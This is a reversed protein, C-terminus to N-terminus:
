MPSLAGPWAPPLLRLRFPPRQCSTGIVPQGPYHGSGVLDALGAVAPAVGVGRGQFADQEMQELLVGTM